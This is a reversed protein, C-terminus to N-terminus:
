SLYYRDHITMSRGTQCIINVWTAHPIYVHYSIMVMKNPEIITGIDSYSPGSSLSIYSDVTISISGYNYLFICFMNNTEDYYFNKISYRELFDDTQMIVGDIYDKAIISTSTKAYGWIIIGITIVVATMIVSSITESVGRRSRTWRKKMSYDGYNIHSNGFYSAISYYLIIISFFYQEYICTLFIRM